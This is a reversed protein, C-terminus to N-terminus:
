EFFDPTGDTRINIESPIKILTTNYKLYTIDKLKSSFLSLSKLKKLYKLTEINEIPNEGFKLTELNVLKSLPTLDTINNNDLTLKKLHPFFVLPRLNTINSNHLLLSSRDKIRKYMNKCKTENFSDGRILRYTRLMKHMAKLTVLESESPNKCM